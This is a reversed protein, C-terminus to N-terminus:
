GEFMSKQTAFAPKDATFTFRFDPLAWTAVIKEEFRFNKKVVVSM